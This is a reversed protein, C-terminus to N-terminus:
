FFNLKCSCFLVFLKIYLDLLFIVIFTEYDNKRNFYNNLEAVNRTNRELEM